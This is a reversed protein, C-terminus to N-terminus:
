IKDISQQMSIKLIKILPTEDGIYIITILTKHDAFYSTESRLGTLVKNKNKYLTCYM